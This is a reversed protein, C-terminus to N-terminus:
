NKFQAMQIKYQENIEVLEKELKQQELAHKRAFEEKELRHRENAEAIKKDCEQNLIALEQEHQKQARDIKEMLQEIHSSM